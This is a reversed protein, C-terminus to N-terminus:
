KSVSRLGMLKKILAIVKDAKARVSKKVFDDSGIPTGVIVTGEERVAIGTARATKACEAKAGEHPTFCGSKRPVIELGVSKASGPGDGTLRGVFQRMAPGRAVINIDDLYAMPAALPVAKAASELVAQLGLAFFLPGLPDGQKVGCHSALDTGPPAGRIFLPTPGGYCFRALPLLQPCREKVAALIVNRDMENFANRADLTVVMAEEDAELAAMIGHSMAETGGKVGIGVQLPALSRGVERGVAEIACKAALRYWVEGIAISRLDIGNEKKLLILPSVLLGCERPLEGSLILNVFKLSAEFGRATSTVVLIMEFSWGSPGGAKGVCDRRVHDLVTSFIQSDIQLAPVDCEIHAPPPVVRHLTGAKRLVARDQPDALEQDEVRRAAVSISGLKAAKEVRGGMRADEDQKKQRHKAAATQEEPEELGEELVRMINKEMRENRQKLRDNGGRPEAISLPCQRLLKQVADVVEKRATSGAAMAATTSIMELLEAAVGSFTGHLEHPIERRIISRTGGSSPEPPECPEARAAAALGKRQKPVVKAGGAAKSSGAGAAGGRPAGAPTGAPAAADRSPTNQM